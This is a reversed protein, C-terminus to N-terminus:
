DIPDIISRCRTLRSGHRSSRGGGGGAAGFCSVVTALSGAMKPALWLFLLLLVCHRTSSVLTDETRTYVVFLFGVIPPILTSVSLSLGM